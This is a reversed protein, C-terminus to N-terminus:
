EEFRWCRTLGNVKVSVRIINSLGVAKYGMVGRAVMLFRRRVASNLAGRIEEMEARLRAGRDAERSDDLKGCGSFCYVWNPCSLLLNLFLAPVTVTVRALASCQVENTPRWPRGVVHADIHSNITKRDQLTIPRPRADYNLFTVGAVKHRARRKMSPMEFM